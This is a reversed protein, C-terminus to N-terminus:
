KQPEIIVKVSETGDATLRFGLQTEELCLRHTIMGDVDVRRSRILEIATTIDLPSGAYSTTTTVENKWMENLPMVVDKGPDPPAFFLINGGREVSKFAQGIASLAGTCVIVLDALKGRNAHKLTAPIDEKADFADDAGLKKAYDM